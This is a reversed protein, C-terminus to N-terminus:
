TRNNINQKKNNNSIQERCHSCVKRRKVLFFIQQKAKPVVAFTYIEEMILIFFLYFQQTNVNFHTLINASFLNDIYKINTIILSYPINQNSMKNQLVILVDCSQLKQNRHM